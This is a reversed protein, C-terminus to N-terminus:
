GPSFVMSLSNMVMMMLRGGRFYNWGLWGEGCKGIKVRLFEWAVGGGRRNRGQVAWWRCWGCGQVRASIRSM